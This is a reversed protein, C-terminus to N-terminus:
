PTPVIVEVERMMQEEAKPPNIQVQCALRCEKKMKYVGLVLEERPKIASLNPSGSVVKIYCTGCTCVGGCYHSIDVDVSRIVELMTRGSMVEHAQGNIVVRVPGQTVPKPLLRRMARRLISM